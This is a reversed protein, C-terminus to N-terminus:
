SRCRREVLLTMRCAARSTVSTRQPASPAALQTPAASEEGNGSYWVENWTVPTEFLRGGFMMSVRKAADPTTDKSSLGLASSDAEGLATAALITTSYSM